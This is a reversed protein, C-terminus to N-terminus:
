QVDANHLKSRDTVGVAKAPPNLLGFDNKYRDFVDQLNMKKLLYIKGRTTLTQGSNLPSYNPACHICSHAPNWALMAGHDNATALIWQGDHSVRAILRELRPYQKNGGPSLRTDPSGTKAQRGPLIELSNLWKDHYIYLRKLQPDTFGTEGIPNVCLNM